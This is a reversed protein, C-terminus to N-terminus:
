VYPPLNALAKISMSILWIFVVLVIMRNSILPMSLAKSDLQLEQHQYTRKLGNREVQNQSMLTALAIAAPIQFPIVYLLRAQILWDGIFLPIIVTSFFLLILINSPHKYNCKFLWYIGLLLIIPNAFLGGLYRQITYVLTNWRGEFDSDGTGLEFVFRLDNQIALNSGVLASKSADIAVTFLIVTLLMLVSRKRYLNTKLMVLLFIVIIISFVTWTYIHALMLAIMAAFFIVLNSKDPRKLFRFLFAISIYGIILAIWNAFFGAYVGV